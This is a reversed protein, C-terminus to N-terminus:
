TGGSQDRGEADSPETEAGNESEAASGEAPVEPGDRAIESLYGLTKRYILAGRLTELREEDFTRHVEDFALGSREAMAEIEKEVEEDTAEISRERAVASVVHARKLQEELRSRTRERGERAEVDQWSMYEEYEVFNVRGAAVAERREDMYQEFEREIIIPSIDVSAGEVVRTLVEDRHRAQASREEQELLDGRIRDRLEGLSAYGEGVGKAFEDDLDALQKRKISHVTVEFQARKGALDPERFDAPTELDFPRREGFPLGVLAEDLGPLPFTTDPRPIYDTEESQVLNRHEGDADVWGVITLNILDDMRVVGETPEWVALDFRMRELAADVQEDGISVEAMPVRVSEFDGLDVRPRLPVTATFSPPAYEEIVVQPMGGVELGEDEIAKATFDQIVANMAASILYTSGYLQEVIRRPAKGKRFGPISLDRVARRYARHLYPELDEDDLEVTLVAERPERQATSVKM